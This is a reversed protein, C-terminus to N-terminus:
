WRTRALQFAKNPFSVSVTLRYPGDKLFEEKSLSKSSDLCGKVCKSYDKFYLKDEKEEKEVYDQLTQPNVKRFKAVPIPQSKVSKQITIDIAKKSAKQIHLTPISAIM